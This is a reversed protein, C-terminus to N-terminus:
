KEQLESVHIYGDVRPDFKIWDYFAFVTESEYLPIGYIDDEVLIKMAEQLQKLRSETDLNQESKEILADVTKNGYHAGNFFGYGKAVNVSHAVFQMFDSASGLESRWGLFYFDSDGDEIKEQLKESSLPNLTVNLGLDRLQSQVYQGITELGDPYDFTVEMSEFIDTTVALFERKANEPDFVTKKIDPNFGFVGSSVFQGAPRAFGFALDVFVQQDFVESIAKRVEKREFLKNRHNFVLFSVELSPISKIEISENTLDNCGEATRYKETKSCAYNPPMNALIQIEGNRLADIRDNRGPIYKLTVDQFYPKEGWYDTYIGLNYDQDTGSGFAYPGTGVPHDFTKLSSPFIYTVALKNLLLPDPVKTKIRIRDTGVATVSEVTAFLNVLQSHPATRAKELSSIVDNVSMDQGDHFKVGPRLRFEWTTSDLLGWSVALAPKIKLDRDTRVLGEYIDVLYSRTVPDFLTPDLEAPKYAYGIVLKEASGHVTVAPPNVYNVLFSVQDEFFLKAGVIILAVVFVTAGGWTAIKKLATHKPM